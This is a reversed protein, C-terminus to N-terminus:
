ITYIHISLNLFKVHIIYINYLSNLLILQINLSSKLGKPNSQTTNRSIYTYIHKHTIPGFINVFIQPLHSM